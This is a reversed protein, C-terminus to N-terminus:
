RIYLDQNCMKKIFVEMKSLLNLNANSGGVVIVM